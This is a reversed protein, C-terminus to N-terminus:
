TNIRRRRWWFLKGIDNGIIYLSPVLLLTLPTSFLLGYGLALAMPYMYVDLGGIGYALPLLGVVTTLTTMIIARLRNGTGEAVITRIEEDPRQKRLENLHNVLVLSDNVVVGALGVAGLMALFSLAEDHLYFAIIVGVIGFPISVMVLIPQLISDFLLILMLYIALAAVAFTIFLSKMSEAQEQAEGGTVFRMGPYDRDLDFHELVAQTAVVSTTVEQDLDSEITTSRVANFHHIDSPGATIKLRAVEGLPILRGQRNPVQLLRLFKLSRRAREQLIVRFDVDEDGYRISTVVEGDYAIRVTRAIDAVTMGLRAIKDYDLVIEVQEKGLDDDREIDKAGEFRSLFAEVSDALVRRMGDDSGVIRIVVPKGVPPGGADVYFTIHEFEGLADIKGRLEEVIDDATRDRQSFPTLSVAVGAYHEGEFDVVDGYGGIRTVFSAVESDPLAMVLSDVKTMKDATADISSGVPLRLVITFYDAGKSPFLIFDMHNTVLWMSSALIVFSFLVFLYRLRLFRYLGRQFVTRFARFWARGGVSKGTPKVRKLGPVLHAPLGVIVEGLSILLALSITLPIVWVFKGLMGSMFFMPAFALFTTLITTVVPKFVGSIGNVAADLPSDGMERRHYINESIIIGDDIIIGLVIIMSSLVIGDLYANFFPLLFVTGLLAVPIGLAVWFAIRINLFVALLILVLGLGIFGNKKIIDFVNKVGRSADSSYLIDVGEPLKKREEEVLAKIREVTRIVDAAESKDVVYSIASIGNMRSDMRETEFDDMVIALDKVKVHPGEFTTRVIVDGVELPGRFEAMTVLNKESTYSELSGGAARINRSQIATVIERLSLQYDRMKDPSVEIRIERARYGYEKLRAVGKVEKLKKEFRRAYERLERYPINGSLGVEIVPFISTKLETILPNDTVEPPFDTVRGVAERVESVVEDLDDVDSEIMVDLFSVNELSISTYREIGTVTKIEEELKNTVNLEVDEPSAGPYYTTIFLEGFEVKPYQDRKILFSTSLGMVIVLITFVYALTHRKAFFRFFPKM